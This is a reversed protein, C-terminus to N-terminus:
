KSITSPKFKVTVDVVSLSSSTPRWRRQRHCHVLRQLTGQSILLITLFLPPYMYGNVVRRDDGLRHWFQVLHECLEADYDYGFLEFEQAFELYHDAIDYTMCHMLFDRFLKESPKIEDRILANIGQRAGEADRLDMQKYIIHERVVM